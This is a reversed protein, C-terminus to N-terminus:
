FRDFASLTAEAATRAMLPLLAFALWITAAILFSASIFFVPLQPAMRNLLGFAFNILLSAAVFPLSIALALRFADSVTRPLAEIAISLDLAKGFALVSYSDVLAAIALHHFDLVLLLTVVAASLFLGLQSSPEGHGDDGSFSHNYGSVQAIMAGAMQAATFVIRVMLGLLVGVACEGALVLFAADNEKLAAVHVKSALLIPALAVSLGLALWLRVTAPTRMSSIGPLLM